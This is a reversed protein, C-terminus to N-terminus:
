TSIMRLCDEIQEGSASKGSKGRLGELKAQLNLESAVGKVRDSCKGSGLSEALIVVARHVMAQNGDQLRDITTALGSKTDVFLEVAREDAGLLTAIAGGAAEALAGPESWYGALIQMRVKARKDTIFKAAGADVLSLNVFCETVATRVAISAETWLDELKDFCSELIRNAAFSPDGSSSQYTALNTLAQVAYM